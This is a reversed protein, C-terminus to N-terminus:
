VVLACHTQEFASFLAITAKTFRKHNIQLHAGRSTNLHFYLFSVMVRSCDIMSEGVSKKMDTM